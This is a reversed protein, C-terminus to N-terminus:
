CCNQTSCSQVAAEDLLQWASSRVTQLSSGCYDNIFDSHSRIVAGPRCGELAGGRMGYLKGKSISLIM